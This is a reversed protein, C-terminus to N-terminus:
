KENFIRNFNDTVITRILQEFQPHEGIFQRKPITILSGVPKLAMARFFSAAGDLARNRKNNRLAGNKRMTRSGLAERYLYWFYGKMRKTVAITGGENHIAAYPETSEYIITNGDIRSTISKRLRGSKILISRGTDTDYSGRRAWKENFFAQREFNRNFEDKGEVKIDQMTENIFQRALRRLEKSFTKM